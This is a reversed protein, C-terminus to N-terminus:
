RSFCGRTSGCLSFRPSVNAAREFTFPENLFRIYSQFESEVNAVVEAIEAAPYLRPRARASAGFRRGTERGREDFRVHRNGADPKGVPKVTSERVLDWISEACGYYEWSASCWKM